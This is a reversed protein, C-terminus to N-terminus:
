FFHNIDWALKIIQIQDGPAPYCSDAAGWFLVGGRWGRRERESEKEVKVICWETEGDILENVYSLREYWQVTIIM